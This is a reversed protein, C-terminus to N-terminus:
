LSLLWCGDASSPIWMCSPGVRGTNFTTMREWNGCMGNSKCSMKLIDNYYPGNDGGEGGIALIENKGHPLLTFYARPLPLPPGSICLFRHLFFYSIDLHWTLYIAELKLKFTHLTNIQQDIKYTDNVCWFIVKLGDEVQLSQELPGSSQIILTGHPKICTKVKQWFISLILVWPHVQLVVSM